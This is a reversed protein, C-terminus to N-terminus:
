GPVTHSMDSMAAYFSERRLQSHIYLCRLPPQPHQRRSVTLPKQNRKVKAETANGPILVGDKM